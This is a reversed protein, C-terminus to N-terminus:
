YILPVGCTSSNVKWFLLERTMYDIAVDNVTANDTTITFVSEIEWEILTNELIRGINEGKHSSILNFKIIKKHMKWDSDIFNTTVVMYNLNQLSTWTDTTICIMKGKLFAKLNLKVEEYLKLCDKQLTIRCPLNFIPEIGNMLERFGDSEVHRFPLEEKIFYQVILKRIKIPDYKMFGLQNTNSNTSGDESMKKFSPQLLTQGKPIDPKRLPSTPCNQLHVKMTSTDNRLQCTLMRNCYNCKAKPNDSDIPEVKTFHLWVESKNV